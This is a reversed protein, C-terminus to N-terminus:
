RARSWTIRARRHVPDGRSLGARVDARRDQADRGWGGVAHVPLSRIRDAELDGDVAGVLGARHREASEDPRRDPRGRHGGARREFDTNTWYQGLLGQGTGNSPTLVSSPVLTPSALDGASGQVASVSIGAQTARAIIGQAPTIAQGAALPVGASGGSVFVADDGTPGILAISHVHRSLPLANHDNKLLVTGAEAVHTAVQQHQPTSVETSPTAPLPNDFVGTDFMAFLIRRVADDLRASPIRGSTFDAAALTNPAGPLASLDVGANEAAVADRVAFGFDPVVFGNFGDGQKLDGLTRPNECSPSGNIQNFSCMVSDM